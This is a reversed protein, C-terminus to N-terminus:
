DGKHEVRKPQNWANKIVVGAEKAASLAVELYATYQGLPVPDEQQLGTQQSAKTGMALTTSLLPATSSFYEKCFFATAIAFGRTKASSRAAPLLKSLKPSCRRCHLGEIKKLM